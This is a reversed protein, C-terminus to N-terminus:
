CLPSGTDGSDPRWSTSVGMEFTYLHAVRKAVGMWVAHCGDDVDKAEGAAVVVDTTGVVDGTTVSLMQVADTCSPCANVGRDGQLTRNGECTRQIFVTDCFLQHEAMSSVFDTATHIGLNVQVGNLQFCEPAFETSACVRAEATPGSAM